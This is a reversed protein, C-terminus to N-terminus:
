RIELNNVQKDSWTLNSNECRVLFSAAQMVISFFPDKSELLDVYISCIMLRAYVYVAAKVWYSKGQFRFCKMVCCITIPYMCWVKGRLLNFFFAHRCVISLCRRTPRGKGVSKTCTKKDAGCSFADQREWVLSWAKPYFLFTLGEEGQTWFFLFLKLALALDSVSLLNRDRSWVM